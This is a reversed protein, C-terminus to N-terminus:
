DNLGARLPHAQAGLVAASRRALPDPHEHLTPGLSEALRALRLLGDVLQPEFASRPRPQFEFGPLLLGRGDPDATGALIQTIQRRAAARASARVM